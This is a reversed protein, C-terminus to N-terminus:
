EAILKVVTYQTLFAPICLKSPIAFEITFAVFIADDIAFILEVDINETSILRVLISHKSLM